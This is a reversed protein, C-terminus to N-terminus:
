FWANYNLGANDIDTITKEDYYGRDLNWNSSVIHYCSELTFKQFLGGFIRLIENFELFM